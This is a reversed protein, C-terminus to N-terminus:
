TGQTYKLAQVWQPDCDPRKMIEQDDLQLLPLSGARSSDKLFGFLDGGLEKNLHRLFRGKTSEIEDLLAAYELNTLTKEFSYIDTGVGSQPATV